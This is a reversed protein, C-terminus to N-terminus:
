RECRVKIEYWIVLFMRLFVATRTTLTGKRKVFSINSTIELLM